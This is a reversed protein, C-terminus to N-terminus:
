LNGTWIVFNFNQLWNFWKEGFPNWSTTGSIWGECTRVSQAKKLIQLLSFPNDTSGSYSVLHMFQKSSQKIFHPVHLYFQFPWATTKM